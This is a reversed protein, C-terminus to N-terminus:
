TQLEVKESEPKLKMMGWGVEPQLIDKGVSEDAILDRSSSARIGVSGAMMRANFGNGVDDVQVLVATWGPPVKNINIRHYQVGDLSLGSDNYKM